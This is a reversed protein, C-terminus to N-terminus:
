MLSYPCNSISFFQGLCNTKMRGTYIKIQFMGPRLQSGNASMSKQYISTNPRIQVTEPDTENVLITSHNM